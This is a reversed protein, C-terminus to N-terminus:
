QKTIKLEKRLGSDTEVLLRYLGSPLTGLNLETQGVGHLRSQYLLRGNLDVIKISHIKENEGSALHLIDKVPNPYL